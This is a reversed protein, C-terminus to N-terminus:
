VSTYPAMWCNPFHDSLNKKKLILIKQNQDMIIASVVVRCEFESPLIEFSTYQTKMIYNPCQQSHYIPVFNYLETDKLLKPNEQQHLHVRGKNLNYSINCIKEGNTSTFYDFPCQNVRLYDDNSENKFYILPEDKRNNTQM